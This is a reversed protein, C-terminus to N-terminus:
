FAPLILTSASENLPLSLPLPLTPDSSLSWLLQSPYKTRLPGYSNGFRDLRGTSKEHRGSKHGHYVM